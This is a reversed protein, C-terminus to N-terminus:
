QEPIATLDSTFASPQGAAANGDKKYEDDRTAEKDGGEELCAMLRALSHQAHTYLSARCSSCIRLYCWKCRWRESREFTQCAQCSLSYNVNRDCFMDKHQQLCGFQYKSPPPAAFVTSPTVTDTLYGTPFYPPMGPAMPLDESASTQRLADDTTAPRGHENALATNEAVAKITVQSSTESVASMVSNGHQHDPVAVPMQRLPPMSGPLVGPGTSPFGLKSSTRPAFQHQPQSQMSVPSQAKTLSADQGRGGQQAANKFLRNEGSHIASGNSPLITQQRQQSRSTSPESTNIAFASERPQTAALLNLGTPSVRAPADPAVTVSMVSSSSYVANAVDAVPAAASAQELSNCPNEDRSRGQKNGVSSTLPRQSSSPPYQSNSTLSTQETSPQPVKAPVAPAPTFNPLDKRKFTPKIKSEAKTLSAGMNSTPQAVGPQSAAPTLPLGKQGDLRSSPLLSSPAAVPKDVATFPSRPKNLQGLSSRSPPLPLPSRPAPLPQGYACDTVDKAPTVPPLDQKPPETKQGEIQLQHEIPDFSDSRADATVAAICPNQLVPPSRPHRDAASLEPETEKPTSKAVVLPLSSQQALAPLPPLPEGFKRVDTSLTITKLMLDPPPDRLSTSRPPLVNTETKITTDLPASANETGNTTQHEVRYVTTVTTDRVNPARPLPPKYSYCADSFPDYEDSTKNNNRSDGNKAVSKGDAVENEIGGAEDEDAYDGELLYSLPTHGAEDLKSGSFLKRVDFAQQNKFEPLLQLPSMVPARASSANTSITAESVSSSLGAPVSSMESYASLISSISATRSSSSGGTPTPSSSLVHATTQSKTDSDLSATPSEPPPNSASPPAADDQVLESLSSFSDFSPINPLQPLSSLASKATATPAHPPQTKTEVYLDHSDSSAAPIPSAVPRRRIAGGSAVQAQSQAPAPLGPLATAKSTSVPHHRSSVPLPPLSHTTESIETAASPRSSTRPSFKADLVPPPAPLAKSFRSRGLTKLTDRTNEYDTNSSPQFSPLDATM